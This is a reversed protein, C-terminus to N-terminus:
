RKVKICSGLFFSIYDGIMVLDLYLTSLVFKPVLIIRLHCHVEATGCTLRVDEKLLLQLLPNVEGLKSM